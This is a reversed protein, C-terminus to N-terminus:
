LRQSKSAGNLNIDMVEQWDKFSMDEANIHKAIGANNILIDIKGFAKITYKIVESIQNEDRVDMELAIAEMKKEKFEKVTKKALALNIDAIIITSGYSALAMAMYKGLGQAGGTIISCNNKLSFLDNKM